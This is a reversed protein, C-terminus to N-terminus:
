HGAVMFRARLNAMVLDAEQDNMKVIIAEALKGLLPIPRNYEKTLTVRTVGGRARFTMTIKSKIGGSTELVLWQNTVVETHEGKGKFSMGAMKYVYRGSFRGKPLATVDSIELVGPWFEPLNAPNSAYSYVQEIDAIIIVEKEIRAM